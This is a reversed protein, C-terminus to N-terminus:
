TDYSFHGGGVDGLKGMCSDYVNRLGGSSSIKWSGSSIGLTHSQPRGTTENYGGRYKGNVWVRYYTDGVLEFGLRIQETSKCSQSGSASTIAATAPQATGAMLTLAAVVAMLKALTRNTKLM